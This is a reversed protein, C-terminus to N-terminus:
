YWVHYMVKYWKLHTVKYLCMILKYSIAYLMCAYMYFIGFALTIRVYTQIYLFVTGCRVGHGDSVSAEGERRYNRCNKKTVSSNHVKPGQRKPSVISVSLDIWKRMQYSEFMPGPWGKLAEWPWDTSCGVRGQSKKKKKWRM